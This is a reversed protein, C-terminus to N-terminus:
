NTIKNWSRSSIESIRKTGNIGGKYSFIFLQKGRIIDLTNQYLIM